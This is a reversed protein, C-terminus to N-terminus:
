LLDLAQEPGLFEVDGQLEDIVPLRRCRSGAAKGAACGVGPLLAGWGLM